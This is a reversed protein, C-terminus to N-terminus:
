RAQRFRFRFWLSCVILSLHIRIVCIFGVWGFASHPSFHFSILRLPLNLSDLSFDHDFWVFVSMRIVKERDGIMDFKVIPACGLICSPSLTSRPFSLIIVRFCLLQVCWSWGSQVSRSVCGDVAPSISLLSCWLCRWCSQFALPEAFSIRGREREWGIFSSTWAWMWGARIWEAKKRNKGAGAWGGAKRKRVTM